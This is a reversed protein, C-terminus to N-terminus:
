TESALLLAFVQAYGGCLQAFVYGVRQPGDVWRHSYDDHAVEVVVGGVLRAAFDQSRFFVGLVNGVSVHEVIWPPLYEVIVADACERVFPRPVEEVLYDKRSVHEGGVAGCSQFKHTGFDVIELEQGGFLPLTMFIEKTHVDRSLVISYIPKLKYAVYKRIIFLAVFAVISFTGLLVGAAAIWRITVGRAQLGFLVGAVIATALLGIWASAAEKTKIHIM